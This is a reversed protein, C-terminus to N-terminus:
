KLAFVLKSPSFLVQLFMWSCCKWSSYLDLHFPILCPLAITLMKFTYQMERKHIPSPPSTPNKSYMEIIVEVAWVIVIHCLIIHYNFDGVILINDDSKLLVVNTNKVCNCNFISVQSCLSYSSHVSSSGPPMMGALVVPGYRPWPRRGM